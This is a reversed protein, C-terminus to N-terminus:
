EEDAPAPELAGSEVMAELPNDDIELPFDVRGRRRASEWAGFIVETAQLANAARLESERDSDLCEIVDAIARQIFDPGHAHEDGVDVAEWDEDGARRIRLAPGAAGEATAFGPAVEIEGDTGVLRNHAGVLGAGPGTAGLGHVGNEYEWQIIAQNENHAGFYVQEQHYEINGLVWTPNAQDTFYHCLDISHSGYDYINSAAFEVRELDGIAGDDLLEKARRYPKGFRRQHNFTLQVGEERTVASMQRAGGWTLDMPKECHIAEVSPHRACGIAIDAHLAPPVCISVVTPEAEELMVTYDEFVNADDIDHADAFAQAHEPVIDACAHLQCNELANYAEAHRYAMAFGSADPSEPNAGTGIFGIRHDTSRHDTM